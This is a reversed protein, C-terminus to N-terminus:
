WNRQAKYEKLTPFEKRTPQDTSLSTRAKGQTQSLLNETCSLVLAAVPGVPEINDCWYNVSSDIYHWITKGICKIDFPM